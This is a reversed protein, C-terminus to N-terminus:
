DGEHARGRRRGFASPRLVRPSQTLRGDRRERCTKWDVKNLGMAKSVKQISIIEWNKHEAGVEGRLVLNYIWTGM